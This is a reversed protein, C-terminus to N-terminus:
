CPLRRVVGISFQFVVGRCVFSSNSIRKTKPNINSDQHIWITCKELWQQKMKYKIVMNSNWCSKHQTSSNPRYKWDSELFFGFWHRISISMEQIQFKRGNNPTFVLEKPQQLVKYTEWPSEPNSTGM